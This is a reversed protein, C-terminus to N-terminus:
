EVGSITDNAFRGLKKAILPRAPDSRFLVYIYILAAVFTIMLITYLSFTRAPMGFISRGQEQVGQGASVGQTAVDFAKTRVSTPQKSTDRATFYDSSIWAEQAALAPRTVVRNDRASGCFGNVQAPIRAATSTPVVPHQNGSQYGLNSTRREYVKMSNGEAYRLQDDSSTNATYAYTDEDTSSM